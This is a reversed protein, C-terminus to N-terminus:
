LSAIRWIRQWRCAPLSNGQKGGETTNEEREGEGRAPRRGTDTRRSDQWGSNGDPWMTTREEVKEEEQLQQWDTHGRGREGHTRKDWRYTTQKNTPSSSLSVSQNSKRPSLRGRIQNDWHATGEEQWHQCWIRHATVVEKGGHLHKTLYRQPVVRLDVPVVIELRERLCHQQEEPSSSSGVGEKTEKGHRKVAEAVREVNNNHEEEGEQMMWKQLM